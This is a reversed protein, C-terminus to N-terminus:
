VVAKTGTTSHIAQNQGKTYTGYLRHTEPTRCRAKTNTYTAFHDYDTLM